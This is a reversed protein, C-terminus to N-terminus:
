YISQVGSRHTSVFGWSSFASLGVQGTQKYGFILDIWRHVSNSCNSGELAARHLLLLLAPDGRCWAPLDVDGLTEAAASAATSTAAPASRGSVGSGAASRERAAGTSPDQAAGAAAAAAFLPSGPPKPSLRIALRNCLFSPDYSYFEPTLEVFTSQGSYAGLPFLARVCYIRM